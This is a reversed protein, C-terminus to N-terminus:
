EAMENLKRLLKRIEKAIKEQNDEDEEDGCSEDVFIPHHAKEVSWSKDDEDADEKQSIQAAVLGANMNIKSFMYLHEEMMLLQNMVSYAVMKSIVREGRLASFLNNTTDNWKRIVADVHKKDIEFNM